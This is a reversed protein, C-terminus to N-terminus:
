LKPVTNDTPWQGDAHKATGVHSLFGNPFHPKSATETPNPTSRHRARQKGASYHFKETGTQQINPRDRRFVSTTRNTVRACIANRTQILGLQSTSHERFSLLSRTNPTQISSSNLSKELTKPM